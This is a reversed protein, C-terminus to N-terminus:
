GGGRSALYIYVVRCVREAGEGEAVVSVRVAGLRGGVPRAFGGVGGLPRALGELVVIVRVDGCAYVARLGGAVREALGEVCGAEALGRSVLRYIDDVSAFWTEGEFCTVRGGM